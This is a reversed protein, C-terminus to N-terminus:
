EGKKSEFQLLLGSAGIRDCGLSLFREAQAFTKIGGSAKIKLGERRYKKFLLVDAETAGGGNFGTSTKIFDAGSEGVLRCALKKEDENLLSTEVIIKLTFGETLTRLATLEARVYEIDGTKLAGINVVADIEEAGDEIAGAVEFLKADTTAYGNPFGVVTCVRVRGRAATAASAVFCPPVCVSAAGLEAALESARLVDREGATPRLETHDTKSIILREDM